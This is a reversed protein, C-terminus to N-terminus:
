HDAHLEEESGHDITKIINDLLEALGTDTLASKRLAAWDQREACAMSMLPSVGADKLTRSVERMEEARRKGHELTRSIMYASLPEWDSGPFLDSLSAVVTKEVGYYRASLLSEALLAEVGKVMVSRCMKAASAKGYDTSFHEVGNFGLAQADYVFSQAYPGGILIPSAIRKPDVPSMVAGEVYRGGANNIVTAAAQKTGPSASNLDFFLADRQIAKAAQTAANLTEAATVASIILDVDAVAENCSGYELVTEQRLGLSPKSAPDPFQIDWATKDVTVLDAALTQGVEGFGLFCIRRIDSM